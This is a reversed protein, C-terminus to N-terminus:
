HNEQRRLSLPLVFLLGEKSLECPEHLGGVEGARDRVVSRRESVGDKQQGKTKLNGAQATNGGVGPGKCM